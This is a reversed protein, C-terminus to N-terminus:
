FLGPIMRSTRARYAGYDNPFTALMTSEEKRAAYGFYVLGAAVAVFWWLSLALANGVFGVLIGTYIPHRIRAYPGTTVLHPSEHVTMPMGWSKGLHRRAWIAFAVGTACILVGLVRVAPNLVIARANIDAPRSRIVLLILAVLVARKLMHRGYAVATRKSGLALTIWYLFFVAWCAIILWSYIM